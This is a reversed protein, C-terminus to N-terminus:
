LLVDLSKKSIESVSLYIRSYYLLRFQIVILSWKNRNYSIKWLKMKFYFATIKRVGRHIKRLFGWVSVFVKLKSEVLKVVISVTSKAFSRRRLEAGLFARNAVSASTAGNM